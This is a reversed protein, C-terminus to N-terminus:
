LDNMRSTERDHIFINNLKRKKQPFEGAFTRSSSLVELTKAESKDLATSSNTLQDTLAGPLKVSSICEGSEPKKRKGSTTEKQKVVDSLYLKLIRKRCYGAGIAWAQDM